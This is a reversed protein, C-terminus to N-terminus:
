GVIRFDQMTPNEVTVPHPQLRQPIDLIIELGTPEDLDKRRERVICDIEVQNVRGPGMQRAAHPDEYIKDDVCNAFQLPSSCALKQMEGSYLSYAGRDTRTKTVTIKFNEGGISRYVRSAVFEREYDNLVDPVALVVAKVARFKGLQDPLM